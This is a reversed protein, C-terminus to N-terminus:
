TRGTESVIAGQAALRFGIAASGSIRPLNAICRKVIASLEFPTGAFMAGAIAFLVAQEDVRLAARVEMSYSAAYAAGVTRTSHGIDADRTLLWTMPAPNAHWDVGAGVVLLLIPQKAVGFALLPEM